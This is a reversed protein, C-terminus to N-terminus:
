RIKEIISDAEGKYFVTTLKDGTNLMGADKVAKGNQLTLSFGRKMVNRPDLLKIKESIGKLEDQAGRLINVTHLKLLTAAQRLFQSEKRSRSAALHLCEQRKQALELFHDRFYGLTMSEIQLASSKLRNKHKEISEEASACIEQSFLTLQLDFATVKEVLFQAAKTPTKQYTHAVIDTITTNIEHGLGSIVPLSLGAITEAILKNDFWGLDATSGGGRTIVVVDLKGAMQEFIRLAGTVDQEVNKGQMHCDRLFVRFNFRSSRLESSFDHFAASDGATILGIRLPVLPIQLFKNKELLGRKKLDDLIKQRNQAVKGLTYAPDIDFVTLSFAGTRSYLDVKCLLKVEIDDKLEVGSEKLKKYIAYKVNAFIVAKVQAVIKDSTEDKQVLNLNVHQRERLDQIEGCIWVYAPFYDRIIGRVTDNLELVTYVKERNNFDFILNDM